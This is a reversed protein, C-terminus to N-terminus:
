KPIPMINVTRGAEATQPSCRSNVTSPGVAQKLNITSSSGMRSRFLTPLPLLKLLGELQSWVSYKFFLQLDYPYFSFFYSYTWFKLYDRFQNEKASIYISPFFLPGNKFTHNMNTSMLYGHSINFFKSFVSLYTTLYNSTQRYTPGCLSKVQHSM